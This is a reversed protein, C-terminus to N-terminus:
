KWRRRPNVSFIVLFEVLFFAITVLVSYFKSIKWAVLMAKGLPSPNNLMYNAPMPLKEDDPLSRDVFSMLRQYGQVYGGPDGDGFFVGLRKRM